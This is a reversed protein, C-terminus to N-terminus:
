GRAGVEGAQRRNNWDIFDDSVNRPAIGSSAVMAAPL